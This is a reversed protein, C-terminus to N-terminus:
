KNFFTSYIDFMGYLDLGEASFVRHISSYSAVIAVLTLILTKGNACRLEGKEIWPELYRAMVEVFENLHKRALPDFENSLELASFQLLRLLEPKETLTKAILDFTRALASQGDRAEAIGTLLDGHLHLQRLVSKM